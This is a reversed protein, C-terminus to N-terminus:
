MEFFSLITIVAYTIISTPCSFVRDMHYIITKGHPMPIDPHPKVINPYTIEIYYIDM